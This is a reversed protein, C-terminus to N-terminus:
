WPASRAGLILKVEFPIRLRRAPLLIIPVHEPGTMLKVLNRQNEGLRMLGVV